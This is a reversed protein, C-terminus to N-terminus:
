YCGQAHFEQLIPRCKSSTRSVVERSPTSPSELNRWHARPFLVVLEGKRKKKVGGNEVGAPMPMPGIDDDSDDEVEVPDGGAAPGDTDPNEMQSDEGHRARKGLVTVDQEGDSM